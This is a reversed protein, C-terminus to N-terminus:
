VVVSNLDVSAPLAVLDIFIDNIVGHCSVLITGVVSNARVSDLGNIDASMVIRYDDIAGVNQMTDLLPSVGAYFKSYSQSNNYQFTISIGVRYCVDKIANVLLRTSLNELANYTAPPIPWLTSNGWTNTGLDPINTIVNINVGEGSQWQDLLKKTVTYDLKGIVVNHKRNAPLAWSYQIAQNSIQAREIMLKLFSPSAVSAKGTGSYTFHGWPAWFSSHSAFMPTGYNYMALIEAYEMVDTRTLQKPVDIFGTACRSYYATLMIAEHIPSAVYDKPEVYDDFQTYDQDDWCPSIIRDPNYTLRDTLLYYVGDTRSNAYTGAATLYLWEKFRLANAEVRDLNSMSAIHQVYTTSSGYRAEAYKQADAKLSAIATEDDSGYEDAERDDGGTLDLFRPTEDIDDLNGILKLTIFKSEVEDIYLITDTSESEDTTFVLNEVAIRSGASDKVYVILNVLHEASIYKSSMRNVSVTISNGFTGPYKAKVTLYSPVDAASVESICATWQEPDFNKTWMTTWENAIFPRSWSTTWQSADFAKTWNESWDSPNFVGPTEVASICQYIINGYSVLDGVAYTSADSFESVAPVQSTCQYVQEESGNNYKVLDGVNYVTSANFTPIVTSLVCQYVKEGDGDNYTVLDGTVYETTESFANIVPVQADNKYIIGEYEVYSNANYIVNNAFAKLGGEIVPINVNAICLKGNFYLYDGQEVVSDSSYTLANYIYGSAETGPCLRCVLVDYGATLLTVATQYSYDGILRYNTAPGRYTSVFAELGAQTAPFREWTIEDLIDQKTVGEESEKSKFYGPGWAATIPLAVTAYSNSGINYTYNSSIENIVIQAM